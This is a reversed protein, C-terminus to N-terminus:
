RRKPGSPTRVASNTNTHTNHTRGRAQRSASIFHLCLHGYTVRLAVATTVATATISAVHTQILAHVLDTHAEGGSKERACQRAGEFTSPSLSPQHARSTHRRSPTQPSCGRVRVRYTSRPHTHKWPARPRRGAKLKRRAYGWALPSVCAHTRTITHTHTPM